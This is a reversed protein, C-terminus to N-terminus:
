WRPPAISGDIRWVVNSYACNVGGNVGGLACCAAVTRLRSCLSQSLYASEAVEPLAWFGIHASQPESPAAGRDRGIRRVGHVYLTYCKQEQAERRQQWALSPRFTGFFEDDVKGATGTSRPASIRAGLLNRLSPRRPLAPFVEGFQRPLTVGLAELLCSRGPRAVYHPPPRRNRLCSLKLFTRTFERVLATRGYHGNALRLHRSSSM